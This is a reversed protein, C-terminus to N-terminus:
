AYHGEFDGGFNLMTDITVSVKIPLIPYVNMRETLTDTLFFVLPTAWLFYTVYITRTFLGKDAETQDIQFNM